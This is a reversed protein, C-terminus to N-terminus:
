RADTVRDFALNISAHKQPALTFEVSKEHLKWGSPIEPQLRYQGPPLDYIEFVGDGNTKTEYTNGEGVIKITRNAVNLDRQGSMARYKGSVRTKGRVKDINDLYLLDETASKVLASRGCIFALWYKSGREPLRLYLLLRKGIDLESFTLLCNVGDGQAFPLEDGPRVNGKYVKDVVLKASRYEDKMREVSSVRAIMVVDSGDIADLVTPLPGCSCAFAIGPLLLM